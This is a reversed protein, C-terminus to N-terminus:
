NGGGWGMGDARRLTPTTAGPIRAPATMCGSDYHTTCYVGEPCDHRGHSFSSSPTTPARAATRKGGTSHRSVQGLQAVLGAASPSVAGAPRDDMALMCCLSPPLPRVSPANPLSRDTWFFSICVCVTIISSSIQDTPDYPPHASSAIIMRLPLYRERERCWTGLSRCLYM